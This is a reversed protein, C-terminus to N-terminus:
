ARLLTTKGCGSKGTILLAEGLNLTFTINKLIPRDYASVSLENVELVEQKKLSNCWLIPM